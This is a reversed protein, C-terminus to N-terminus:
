ERERKMQGAIEVVRHVAFQKGEVCSKATWLHLRGTRHPRPCPLPSPLLCARWHQHREKSEVTTYKHSADTLVDYIRIYTHRTHTYHSSSTRLVKSAHSMSASMSRNTWCFDVPPSLGPIHLIYARWALYICVYTCCLFMHAHTYIHLHIYTHMYMHVYTRVHFWSLSNAYVYVGVLKHGGVATTGVPSLSSYLHWRSPKEKSCHMNGNWSGNQILVVVIWFCFHGFNSTCGGRTINSPSWWLM